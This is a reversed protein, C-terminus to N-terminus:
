SNLCIKIWIAFGALYVSAAFPSFPLEQLITQLYKILKFMFSTASKDSPGFPGFGEVDIGAVFIGDETPGFASATSLFLGYFGTTSSFFSAFCVLSCARPDVLAPPVLGM